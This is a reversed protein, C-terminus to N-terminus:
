KYKCVAWNWGGYPNGNRDPYPGVRKFTKDAIGIVYFTFNNLPNRLRWKFNRWRDNPRYYDPPVPHELNGFWFAPNWKRCPRICVTNTVTIEHSRAVADPATAFEAAMMGMVVFCFRARSFM